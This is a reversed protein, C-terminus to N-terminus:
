SQYQRDREDEDLLDTLSVYEGHDVDGAVSQRALQSV